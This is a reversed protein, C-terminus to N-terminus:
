CGGDTEARETIAQEGNGPHGELLSCVCFPTEVKLEIFVLTFRSGLSASLV